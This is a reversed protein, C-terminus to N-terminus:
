CRGLAKTAVSSAVALRRGSHGLAAVASPRAAELDKLLARAHGRYAQPAYVCETSVYALGRYHAYLVIEKEYAHRLPKWRPVA